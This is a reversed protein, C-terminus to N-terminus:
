IVGAKRLDEELQEPSTYHLANIGVERAKQVNAMSDDIFLAKEPVVAFRDILLQYIRPDPKKLKEKGSVLIDEFLHLFDYERLAVPWTEASWNTLALLRHQNQTKIKKLLRVSGEIPGGLMEPWRHWYAEIEAQYDPYQDLLIRVAEAWSRGADQQANWEPTCIQELFHHMEAEETFIKRYLYKPNWDILVAGLDFIITDIKLNM